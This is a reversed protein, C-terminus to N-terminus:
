KKAAEDNRRPNRKYPIVKDVTWQRVNMRARTFSRRISFSFCFGDFYKPALVDPASATVRM